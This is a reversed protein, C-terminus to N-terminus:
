RTPKFHFPYRVQVVGGGKPKPFTISKIQDAICKSVIENMGEATSTIVNGDVGITFSATVTGKLAQDVLLQKEYCYRIRAVKRRIYRRIINKDLDGVTSPAGIRVQPSATVGGDDRHGVGGTAAFHERWGDMTALHASFFKAAHAADLLRVLDAVPPGPDVVIWLQPRFGEDPNAARFAGFVAAADVGGLKAVLTRGGGQQIRYIGDDGLQFVVNGDGLRGIPSGSGYTGITGWGDPDGLDGTLTRVCESSHLTGLKVPHAAGVDSGAKAVGMAGGYNCLRRLVEVVRAAPLTQDALVVPPNESIESAVLTGRAGLRGTGGISGFGTGTGGYGAGAEIRAVDEIAYIGVERDSDKKGMKGEDLVMATGTGGEEEDELIDGEVKDEYRPDAYGLKNEDFAKESESGILEEGRYYADLQLMLEEAKVPKGPFGGGLPTKVGPKPAAATGIRDATVLVYYDAALEIAAPSKALEYHGAYKAPVAELLPPKKTTDDKKDDSKKDGKKAGAKEEDKSGCAAILACTVGAVM